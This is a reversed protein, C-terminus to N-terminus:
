RLNEWKTILADYKDNNDIPLSNKFLIQFGKIYLKGVESFPDIEFILRDKVDFGYFRNEITIKNNDILFMSSLLINRNLHLQINLEQYRNRLVRLTFLIDTIYTDRSAPSIELWKNFLVTEEPDPLIIHFDIDNRLTMEQIEPAFKVNTAGLLYIRETANILPTHFSARRKRFYGSKIGEEFLAKSYKTNVGLQEIQKLIQTAVPSLAASLNRDSRDPKYKAAKLGFMDSPLKLSPHEPVVFYVREYGISGVFLGYELILNDRPAAKSHDRSIVTDDPSLIFIAFDFDDLISQLSDMATKSLSFIDDKWITVETQYQLQEELYRALNIGESSSGIFVKPLISSM